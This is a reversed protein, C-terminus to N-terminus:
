KRRAWSIGLAAIVGVAMASLAQGVTVGERERVQVNIVAPEPPAILAKDLNDASTAAWATAFLILRATIYAFVMVGLVSGFTAGAPGSVVRHLYVAGVQKFIEFAVAALLGARAASALSFRERPLRAIIWTFLLWSILLAVAISALRLALGLGPVDHIGFWGLVRRMLSKDGLATLAITVLLAGFTSLLAGLDSLKTRFYNAAEPEQEGWMVTLAQRLNAMWGLGAWLAVALGVVGISTRSDIAAEMLNVLQQGFEGTVSKKIRHEADAVIEPRSALVFGVGAFGIMLLPFLAFLTFYTIGAAFFDGKAAQYRQQARIVHDLWPFRARVRDLIGPKDGEPM